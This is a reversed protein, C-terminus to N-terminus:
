QLVPVATPSFFVSGLYAFQEFWKLDSRKRARSNTMKLKAIFLVDDQTGGVFKTGQGRYLADWEVGRKM